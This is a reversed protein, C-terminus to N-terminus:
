PPTDAFEDVDESPLIDRRLARKAEAIRAAHSRCIGCDSGDTLCENRHADRAAHAMSLSSAAYMAVATSPAVRRRLRVTHAVKNM